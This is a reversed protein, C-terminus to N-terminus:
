YKLVEISSKESSSSKVAISFLLLNFACRSPPSPPNDRHQHLAKTKAKRDKRRNNEKWIERRLIDGTGGDWKEENKLSKDFAKRIEADRESAKGWKKM